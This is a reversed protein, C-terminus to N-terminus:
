RLHNVVGCSSRWSRLDYSIDVYFYFTLPNSKIHTYYLKSMNQLKNNKLDHTYRYTINYLHLTHTLFIFFINCKKQKIGLPRSSICGATHSIENENNLDRIVM